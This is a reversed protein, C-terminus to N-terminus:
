TYALKLSTRVGTTNNEIQLVLLFMITLLKRRHQLLLAKKDLMGALKKLIHALQDHM